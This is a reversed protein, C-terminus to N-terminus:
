AVNRVRRERRETWAALRTLEDEIIAEARVFASRHDAAMAAAGAIHNLDLLALRPFTGVAPEVNRPSALDLLLSTPLDTGHLARAEALAGATVTPAGAGTAVVTLRATAIERHRESFPRWEAGLKHALSVAFSETRNILIVRAGCATLTRAASRGVSGCGLIVVPRGTLSGLIEEALRVASGGISARAPGLSTEAHIRRGAHLASQFLRHLEAGVSGATAARSYAERVQGLVQSDGAVQSELGAAVRFLHRAAQAGEMLRARTLYATALRPSLRRAVAHLGAVAAVPSRSPVWCFLEVRNCTSLFAVQAGCALRAARGLRVHDEEPLLFQERAALDAHRHDLSLGILV